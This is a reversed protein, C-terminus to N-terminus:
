KSRPDPDPDADPHFTTDPDPDAHFHYTPHPDADPDAYLDHPDEVGFLM